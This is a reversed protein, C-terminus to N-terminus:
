LTVGPWDVDVPVEIYHAICGVASGTVTGNIAENVADPRMYGSPNIPLVLSGNTPLSLLPSIATTASKITVTAVGAAGATLVLGVIMLRATTVAPIIETTAGTALNVIAMKVDVRSSNPLRIDPGSVARTELTDGPETAVFTKGNANMTGNANM